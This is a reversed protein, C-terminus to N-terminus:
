TVTIETADLPPADTVADWVAYTKPGCNNAVAFLNSISDSYDTFTFSQDATMPASVEIQGIAASQIFTTVLCSDDFVIDFSDVLISEGTALIEAKIEFTKTGILSRDSNANVIFEPSSVTIYSM